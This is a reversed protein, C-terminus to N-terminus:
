ISMFIAPVRIIEIEGAWDNKFTGFHNRNRTYLYRDCLLLDALTKYQLEISVASKNLNIDCLLQEYLEYARRSGEAGIKYARHTHNKKGRCLGIVTREGNPTSMKLPTAWHVAIAIANLRNLWYAFIRSPTFLFNYYKNHRPYTSWKQNRLYFNHWTSHQVPPLRVTM